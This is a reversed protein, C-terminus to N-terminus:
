IQHILLGIREPYKLIIKFGNRLSKQKEQGGHKPDNDEQYFDFDYENFAPFVNENLVNEYEKAIFPVTLQELIRLGNGTIAGWLMISGGGIKKVEEIWEKLMKEGEKRWIKHHANFHSLHLQTEDSWVVRRWMEITWNEHEKAWELRKTKQEPTLAPKKLPKRSIIGNRRLVHRISERCATLSLMNKLEQLTSHRNSLACRCLLRETRADIVKPNNSKEPHNNYITGRKDYRKLFFEITQRPRKVVKSIGSFGHGKARMEVIKCKTNDGLQKPM